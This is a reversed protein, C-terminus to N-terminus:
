RPLGQATFLDGGNHVTWASHKFLVPRIVRFTFFRIVEFVFSVLFYNSPGILSPM